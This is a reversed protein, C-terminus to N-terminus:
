KKYLIKDNSLYKLKKEINSKPFITVLKNINANRDNSLGANLEIVVTIHHHMGNDYVMVAYRKPYTEYILFTDALSSLANVIEEPKLGHYHHKGVKGIPQMIEWLTSSHVFLSNKSFFKYGILKNLQLLHVNTFEIDIADYHKNQFQKLEKHAHKKNGINIIRKM